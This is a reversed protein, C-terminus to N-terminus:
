HASALLIMGFFVAVSFSALLAIVIDKAFKLGTAHQKM